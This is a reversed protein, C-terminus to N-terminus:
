TIMQHRLVGNLHNLTMSAQQFVTTRLKVVDMSANEQFSVAPFHLPPSWCVPDM